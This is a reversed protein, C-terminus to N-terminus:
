ECNAITSPSQGVPRGAARGAVHKTPFHLCVETLIDFLDQGSEGTRGPRLESTDVEIGDVVIPAGIILRDPLRWFYWDPRAVQQCADPKLLDASAAQASYVFFVAAAALIDRWTIFMVMMYPRMSM